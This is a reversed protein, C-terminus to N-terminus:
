ICGSENLLYDIVTELKKQYILDLEIQTKLENQNKTYVHIVGALLFLYVLCVILITCITKNM